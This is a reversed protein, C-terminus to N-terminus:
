SITCKISLSTLFCTKLQFLLQFCAMMLLMGPITWGPPAVRSDWVCVSVSVNM